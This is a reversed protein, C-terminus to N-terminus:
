KELTDKKVLVYEPNRILIGEPTLFLEVDVEKKDDSEPMLGYLERIEKPIGIRGLGDIQKKIAIKEM